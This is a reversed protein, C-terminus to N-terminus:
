MPIGATGGPEGDDNAKQIEDREGIMYSSCNHTATHHQKKIKQIFSQAEEKTQVRAVHEIFRSKQIINKYNDDEKITDYQRIINNKLKKYLLNHKKKRKYVHLTDLLDLSKFSLKMLGM